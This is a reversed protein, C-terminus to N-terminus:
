GVAAALLPPLRDAVVPLSLPSAFAIAAALEPDTFVNHKGHAAIAPDALLADRAPDGDTTWILVDAAIKDVAIRSDTSPATFGLATLWDPHEVRAHGDDLTGELLLATRGTFSQNNKGAAAFKDDVGTVLQQMEDHKFVAQGITAAQDKWPEFFADQGSQPITPAIGALKTYTDKDLGANTAVILDPKLAAIADTDVGDALNLVAPQASGLKAAAWPWVGFPQAGVWDTVAIPVVGVALLFDQDNLGASVVRTPPGPIKTEGFAHKVTVSGDAAVTGPKQRACAALLAVGAAMALFGRRSLHTPM